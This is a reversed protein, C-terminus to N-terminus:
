IGLLGVSVRLLVLGTINSTNSKAKRRGKNHIKEPIYLM